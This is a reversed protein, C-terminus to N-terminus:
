RSSARTRATAATPTPDFDGVFAGEAAARAMTDLPGKSFNEPLTFVLERVGRPKAFRVATGAAERVTHITAKAM